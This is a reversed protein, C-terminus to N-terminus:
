KPSSGIDLASAIQNTVFGCLSGLHQATRSPSAVSIVTDVGTQLFSWTSSSRSWCVLRCSSWSRSWCVSWCISGSWVRCWVGCWVWGREWSWSRCWLRSDLEKTGLFNLGYIHKRQAKTFTVAVIVTIYTFQFISSNHKTPLPLSTENM